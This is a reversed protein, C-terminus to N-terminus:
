FWYGFFFSYMSLRFTVTRYFAHFAFYSGMEFGHSNAADYKCCSSLHQWIAFETSKRHRSTMRNEELADEFNGILWTGANLDIYMHPNKNWCVTDGM